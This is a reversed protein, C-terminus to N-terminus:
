NIAANEPYMSAISCFGLFFSDVLLRGAKSLDKWKIEVRGPSIDEKFTDETLDALSVLLTETLATIGACVIDQGKPGYGAHGEVKLGDERVTVVTLPCEEKRNCGM